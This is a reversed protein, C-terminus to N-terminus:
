GKKYIIFALTKLFKSKERPNIVMAKKILREAKILERGQDAYLWALKNINETNYPTVTLIAEMWEIAADKHGAALEVTAAMEMAPIYGRAIFLVEEDRSEIAKIISKLAHFNKLPEEPLVEISAKFVIGKQSIYIDKRNCFEKFPIGFEYSMYVSHQSMLGDLMGEVQSVKYSELAEMSLPKFKGGSSHRIIDPAIINIAPYKEKLQGKFWPLMLMDVNLVAADRRIGEVYQLYWIPFLSLDTDVFLVGKSDVVELIDYAYDRAFTNKSQNNADLNIYIMSAPLIVFLPTLISILLREQNMTLRKTFLAIVCSYLFLFGVGTYLSFIIFSPIIIVDMSGLDAPAPNLIIITLLGFTMFLGSSFLFPAPARSAFFLLGAAGILLGPLAFQERLISLYYGSQLLIRELHYDRSGFTFQKRMIVGLFGSIKEPDGWDMFPNQASRLPLYIYVSFGLFLFFIILSTHSALAHVGSDKFSKLTLTAVAFLIFIIGFAIMTHHNSLSLGWLFSILYLFQASNLTLPRQGLIKGSVATLRCHMWKLSLWLLATFLAANLTYVEAVVAQSWFISSGAFVLSGLFASLHDIHGHYISGKSRRNRILGIAEIISLYLFFVSLGGLSASLINVRFAVSNGIPIFTFAKGILSFLPYGPPHAIGLTYAASILEPSDGVSISPSLTNIYLVLPSVICIVALMFRIIDQMGARSAM